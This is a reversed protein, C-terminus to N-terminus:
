NIQKSLDFRQIPRDIYKYLLLNIQIKNKNYKQFINENKRIMNFENANALEGWFRVM